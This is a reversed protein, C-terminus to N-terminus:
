LLKGIILNFDEKEANLNDQREYGTGIRMYKGGFVFTPISGKPNYKNYIDLMNNPVETEVEPTLTNDGTDLEWHQINVQNAFNEKALSDFTDKIWICHPCWTTSFLIVYPKGTSDRLISNGTDYFTSGEVLVLKGSASGTSILGFGGTMFAIIIVALIAFLLIWLTSKKITVM